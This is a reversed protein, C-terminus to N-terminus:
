GDMRGTGGASRAGPFRFRDILERWETLGDDEDSEGALVRVLRGDGPVDLGRAAGISKVLLYVNVFRKVARPTSGVLAAVAQAQQLEASSITLDIADSLVQRPNRAAAFSAVVAEFETSGVPLPGGDEQERASGGPEGSRTLSPTLLGRLMRERVDKGLPQVQFPVQFIKELYDVPDAQRFQRFHDKLSSTLWTADVAVVVVFLPFALLLHVAELVKIVVPTPCRDLDDIYLVIRDIALDDSVKQKAVLHTLRALDRRVLAPVGLHRRYDDSDVRDTIFDTLVRSPTEAAQQRKVEAVQAALDREKTQAATLDAKVKALKAEAEHLAQENRKLEDAEAQTLRAQAESIRKSAKHLYQGATSVYTTATALLAAIAGTDTFQAIVVTLAIAVIVAILFRPERLPTLLNRLDTRAQDLEARLKTANDEDFGATKAAELVAAKLLKSADPQRADQLEEAAREVAKRRTEVEEAAAKQETELAEREDEAQQHVQDAAQVQQVWYQQRQAILDDPETEYRRLNRFLHEVLSAWLDGGVYQWANFEVQVVAQHFSPLKAASIEAIRSQLSRLFYSKGSGWAGFLGVALPPVLRRSTMVHAFADIEPGIGVLDVVQDPHDAQYDPLTIGPVTYPLKERLFEALPQRGPANRTLSGVIAEARLGRRRLARGIALTAPTREEALLQLFLQRLSMPRENREQARSLSLVPAMSADHPPIGSQWRVVGLLAKATPPGVHTRAVVESLPIGFHNFLVTAPSESLDALVIGIILDISDIQQEDRAQASAWAWRLAAKVPASFQEWQEDSESTLLGM